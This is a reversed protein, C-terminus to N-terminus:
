QQPTTEPVMPAVPARHNGSEVQATPGTLSTTFPQVDGICTTNKAPLKKSILYSDVASIICTSSGYATHGWSDNSILRSNPLLSSAKVASEYNTAPDWYNGVILVPNVTRRTFPGTYANKDRVKWTKAACPASVWTWPLGFDSATKATADAHVSWTSADAPNLGDTCLVTQFAEPSNDYPFGYGTFGSDKVQKARAARAAAARSKQTALIGSLTKGAQARRAAAPASAGASPQLVAYVSTLTDSIVSSGDPYYMMTLLFGVLDAYSITLDPGDPDTVKLPAKKLASIITTYNALPDGTSAFTCFSAGAKGCRVLIEHFARAAGEGSRIRVTQPTNKTAETGAWGIPDVVGDVAVARVRDPFLNAYVQGLYTGYSLGLYTLQRDGFARRLVDMDRAVEATSMNASLPRGTTSCATGFARSSTVFAAKEASTWPFYVSLGNLARSREGTNKWCRVNDSFNTGRPDFGVVDFKALVGPSLFSPAAAAIGIGSGGPGGPNLFLTGVKHKQDTAKLRLVAVSTQAGKPQDYDLPLRVSACQATPAFVSCDWWAFKPTPVRDVRQAEASSTKDHAPAAQASAPTLLSAPVTLTAAAFVAVRLRAVKTASM